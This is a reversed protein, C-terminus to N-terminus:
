AATAEVAELAKAKVPAATSIDCIAYGHGAPVYVKDPETWGGSLLLSACIFGVQVLSHAPLTSVTADLYIDPKM